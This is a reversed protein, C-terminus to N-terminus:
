DIADDLQDLSTMAPTGPPKPEGSGPSGLESRLAKAAGRAEQALLWSIEHRTLRDNSVNGRIKGRAAAAAFAPSQAAGTAPKGGIAPRATARTKPSRARASAWARGPQPSSVAGLGKPPISAPAPPSPGSAPGSESASEANSGVSPPGHVSRSCHSSPMSQVVSRQSRSM